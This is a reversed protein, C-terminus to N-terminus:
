PSANWYADIDGTANLQRVREILEIAGRDTLASDFAVNDVVDQLTEGSEADAIAQSLQHLGVVSVGGRDDPILVQVEHKIM